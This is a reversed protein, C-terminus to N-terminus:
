NARGENTEIAEKRDEVLGSKNRLEKRCKLCTLPAKLSMTAGALGLVLLEVGHVVVGVLLSRGRVGPGENLGGALKYHHFIFLRKGLVVRHVDLFSDRVNGLKHTSELENTSKTIRTEGQGRGREGEL